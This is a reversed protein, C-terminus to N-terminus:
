IVLSPVRVRVQSGLGSSTHGGSVRRNGTEGQASGGVNAGKCLLVAGIQVKASGRSQRAERKGELGRAMTDELKGGKGVPGSTLQDVLTHPPEM